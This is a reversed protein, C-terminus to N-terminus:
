ARGSSEDSTLAEGAGDKTEGHEQTYPLLVPTRMDDSGLLERHRRAVARRADARGQEEVLWRIVETLGAPQRRKLYDPYRAPFRRVREALRAAYSHLAACTEVEVRISTHRM